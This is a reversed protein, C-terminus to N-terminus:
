DIDRLTLLEAPKGAVLMAGILLTLTGIVLLLTIDSGLFVVGIIMASITYTVNLAMSRSAGCSNAAKYYYFYSAGAFLGALAIYVYGMTPLTQFLVGYSKMGIGALVPLILFTLGGSTFERIGIALEPDVFDMGLTAIINELAWAVATIFAMLLGLYFNPYNGGTPPMWSITLAGIICLVIGIWANISIKEKLVIRSLVAGIAPFCASIAIPYIPGALYVSAMVTTMALPGGFFSALVVFKGPKSRLIRIYEKSKGAQINKMLVAIGSSTDQLCAMILPVLLLSVLSATKLPDLALSLTQLTPTVGYLMGAAFAWLLGKKAYRLNKQHVIKKVDM